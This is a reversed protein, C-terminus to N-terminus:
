ISTGAVYGTSFAIQLNFGGTLADVDLVEGAFYLGKVLKSEMTKPNIEGVKIGGSTIIGFDLSDVSKYKLDFRKLALAIQQIQKSNLSKAKFTPMINIAELFPEILARPLLGAILSSVQKNGLEDVDREIRRLLQEYTLAPKFDIYLDINTLRNIYSSMSLVIPGSIGKSTFLMEGFFEKFLKNSHLAVLKVNKLSVGELTKIYHDNLLIPVLGPVVETISHGFKKAFQYGDGHSGTASYTVGGTCCITADYTNYVGCNTTINFVGNTKEISLVKHNLHINVGNQKNFRELAKIIDSSKDSVPFVRNGREIKLSVGMNEFFAMADQSTFSNLASYLFKSNNVVNNIVENPECANVVNCRGKGTIFLKKGLKENVEFLDVAHGNQACFGAAMLGSAGGGIVAVRM